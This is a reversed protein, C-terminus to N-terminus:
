WELFGGKRMEDGDVLEVVIRETSQNRWVTVVVEDGPKKHKCYWHIVKPHTVAVKDIAVIASGPFLEAHRSKGGAYFRDIAVVTRPGNPRSFSGMVPKVKVEFGIHAEAWAPGCALLSCVFLLKRV